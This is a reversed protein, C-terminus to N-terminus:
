SDWVGAIWPWLAEQTSSGSRRPLYIGGSTGRRPNELRPRRPPLIPGPRTNGAGSGPTAGQGQQPTEPASTSTPRGVKGSSDVLLDDVTIPYTKMAAPDLDFNARGGGDIWENYYKNLVTGVRVQGNRSWAVVASKGFALLVDGTDPADNKLTIHNPVKSYPGLM